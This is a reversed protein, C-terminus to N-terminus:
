QDVGRQLLQLVAADESGEGLALERSIGAVDGRDGEALTARRIAVVRAGLADAGPLSRARRGNRGGSAAAAAPTTTDTTTTTSSHHDMQNKSPVRAVDPASSTMPRSASTAAARAPRETGTAATSPKRAAKREAENALAPLMGSARTAASSTRWHRQYTTPKPVVARITEKRNQNKPE